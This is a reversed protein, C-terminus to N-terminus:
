NLKFLGGAAQATLNEQVDVVPLIEIDAWPLYQAGITTLAAHSDADWV